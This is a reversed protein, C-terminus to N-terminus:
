SLRAATMAERAARFRNKAAEDQEEQEFSYLLEDLTVFQKSAAKEAAIEQKAKALMKEEEELFIKAMSEFKQSTM